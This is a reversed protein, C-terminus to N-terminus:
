IFGISTVGNTWSISAMVFAIKTHLYNVLVFYSGYNTLFVQNRSIKMESKM